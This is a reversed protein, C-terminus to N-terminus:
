ERDPSEERYFIFGYNSGSMPLYSIAGANTLGPQQRLHELLRTFFRERQPPEPYQARPLSVQAAYVGAPQFGVDVYQMRVFSQFLLGAAILLAVTVATESVTLLHHLRRTMGSTRGESRTDHLVDTARVRTARLAPTIGFLVGTALSVATAFVLVTLDSHTDRLRPINAPAHAVLVDIVSSVAWWGVACGAVSLLVSETLLQRILR